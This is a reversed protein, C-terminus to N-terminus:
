QPKTRHYCFILNFISCIKELNEGIVLEKEYHGIMLKVRVRGSELKIELTDTVAQSKTLFMLGTMRTTRFRLSIDHVELRSEVKKDLSMFNNGSFEVTSTGVFNININDGLFYFNM